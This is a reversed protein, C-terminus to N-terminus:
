LVCKVDDFCPDTSFDLQEDESPKKLQIMKNKCTDRTWGAVFTWRCTGLTGM